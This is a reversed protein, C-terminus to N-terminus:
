PFNNNIYNKAFEFFEKHAEDVTKCFCVAQFILHLGGGTAAINEIKGQAGYVDLDPYFMPQSIIIYGRYNFIKKDISM